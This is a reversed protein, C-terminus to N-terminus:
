KKTPKKIGLGIKSQVKKKAIKKDEEKARLLGLEDKGSSM